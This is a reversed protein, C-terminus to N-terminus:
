LRIGQAVQGSQGRRDARSAGVTREVFGEIAPSSDPASRELRRSPTRDGIGLTM